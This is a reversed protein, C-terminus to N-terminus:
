YKELSNVGGVLFLTEPMKLCELNGGPCRPSIKWASAVAALAAPGSCPVYAKNLDRAASAVICTVVLLIFFSLLFCIIFFLFIFVFPSGPFHFSCDLIFLCCYYYYLMYMCVSIYIYICCVVNHGPLKCTAYVGAQLKKSLLPAGKFHVASGWRPKVKFSQRQLSRNEAVGNSDSPSAKEIGPLTTDILHRHCLSLRAALPRSFGM